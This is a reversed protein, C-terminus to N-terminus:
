SSKEMVATRAACLFDLDLKKLLCVLSIQVSVYTIRHDPGGDTYLFLVPSPPTKTGALVSYVEAAHRVPNSPEFIADKFGVYVQGNYWSDRIHEPIKLRFIVSPIISFKTFDHDAVIM